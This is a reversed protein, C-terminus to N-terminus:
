VVAWMWRSTNAKLCPWAAGKGVFISWCRRSGFCGWRLSNVSAGFCHWYAAKHPAYPKEGLPPALKWNKVGVDEATIQGQNMFLYVVSSHISGAKRARIGGQCRTCDWVSDNILGPGRTCIFPVHLLICSGMLLLSLLMLSLHVHVLLSYHLLLPPLQHVDTPARNHTRPVAISGCFLCSQDAAAARKMCGRVRGKSRKLLTGTQALSVYNGGMGVEQSHGDRASVVVVVSSLSQEWIFKPEQPAESLPTHCLSSPETSNPPQARQLGAQPESKRNCSWFRSVAQWTFEEVGHQTFMHAPCGRLRLKLGQSLGLKGVDVCLALSASFAAGLQYFGSCVEVDDWTHGGGGLCTNLTWAPPENTM